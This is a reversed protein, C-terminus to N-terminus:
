VRSIFPPSSRLHTVKANRIMYTETQQGMYLLFFVWFWVCRLSFAFTVCFTVCFYRLILTYVSISQTYINYIQCISLGGATNGRRLVVHLKHPGAASCCCCSDYTARECVWPKLQPGAASSSGLDCVCTTQRSLAINLPGSRHPLWKTFLRWLTFMSRLAFVFIDNDNSSSSACKWDRGSKDKITVIWM